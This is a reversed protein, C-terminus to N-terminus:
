VHSLLCRRVAFLLYELLAMMGNADVDIRRLENRLEV